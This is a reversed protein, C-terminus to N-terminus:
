DPQGQRRPWLVRKLTALRFGGSLWLALMLLSVTLLAAALVWSFTVHVAASGLAATLVTTLLVSTTGCCATLSAVAAIATGSSRIGVRRLRYWLLLLFVGLGLVSFDSVIHTIAVLGHRPQPFGRPLVLWPLPEIAAAEVVLSIGVLALTSGVIAWRIGGLRRYNAYALGAVALAFAAPVFGLALSYGRLQHLYAEVMVFAAIVAAM